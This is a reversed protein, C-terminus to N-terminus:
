LDAEIDKYKPPLETLKWIFSNQNINFVTQGEMQQRTIWNIDSHEIKDLRVFAVQGNYLDFHMVLTAINEQAKISIAELVKHQKIDNVGQFGSQMEIRMKEDKNLQIELDAKPTKRFTDINDLDDDGIFKIESPNVEFIKCLAGVFYQAMLYGRMWSYYVKEPRRGLNNLRPLIDNGKITQLVTNINKEIFDELKDIRLAEPITENLKTMIEKLRQNLKEIYQFDVKPKIDKADFFEKTAQQSTFGLQQRYARFYEADIATM